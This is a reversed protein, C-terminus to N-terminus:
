RLGTRRAEYQHVRHVWSKVRATHGEYSAGWVFPNNPLVLLQDALTLSHEEDPGHQYTWTRASVDHYARLVCVTGLSCEDGDLHYVKIVYEGTARDRTGELDFCREPSYGARCSPCGFEVM